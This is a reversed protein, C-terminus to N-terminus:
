QENKNSNILKAVMLCKQKLKRNEEKLRKIEDEMERKKDTYEESIESLESFDDMVYRKQAETKLELIFDIESSIQPYNEKLFQGFMLDNDTQKENQFGILASDLNESNIFGANLLYEGLRIKGAMYEFLGSIASDSPKTVLGEVISFQFIRSVEEITLYTNLSIEVISKNEFCGSLFNYLNHDFGGQRTELETKGKFTLVPTFNTYDKSSFKGYDKLSVYNLRLIVAQKIWLPLSNLKNVTKDLLNNKM